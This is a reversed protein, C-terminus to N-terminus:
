RAPNAGALILVGKVACLGFRAPSRVIKSETNDRAVASNDDHPNRGQRCMDRGGSRAPQISCDRSDDDRSRTALPDSADERILDIRHLRAEGSCSCALNVVRRRAHIRHGKIGVGIGRYRDNFKVSRTPFGLMHEVDDRDDPIDAILGVQGLLVSIKGKRQCTQTGHHRHHPLESTVLM